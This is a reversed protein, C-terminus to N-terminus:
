TNNIFTQGSNTMGFFWILTAAIIMSLAILAAYRHGHHHAKMWGYLALFASPVAIYVSATDHLGNSLQTSVWSVQYIYFLAGIVSASAAWDALQESRKQSRAM